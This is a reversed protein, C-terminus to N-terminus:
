GHEDRHEHELLSALRMEGTVAYRVATRRWHLITSRVAIAAIGGDM